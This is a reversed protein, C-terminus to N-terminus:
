TATLYSDLSAQYEGARFPRPNKFLGFVSKFSEAVTTLCQQAVHSYLAQFHINSKMLRHLDFKSPVKGTKFYLQRAYYTGCNALKNSEGCVFELIAKLESDPNILVQQCGFM